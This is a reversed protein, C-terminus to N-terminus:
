LLVGNKINIGRINNCNNIIIISDGQAELLDLAVESVIDMGTSIDTQCSKLSSLQPQISNLSM